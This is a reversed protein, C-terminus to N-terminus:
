LMMFDGSASIRQGPIWKSDESALWCVVRAIDDATGVWHEVATTKLVTERAEEPLDGLMDSEVSGPAVSNVTHGKDGLEYALNRMMRKIAAKSARYLSFRRLGFRSGSSSITIISGPKWLYSVVAKILLLPARVNIDFVGAYDELTTKEIPNAWFVGANNILIDIKDGFAERTSAVISGSAELEKPDARIIHM